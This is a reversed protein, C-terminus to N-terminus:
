ATRRSCRRVFMGPLTSLTRIDPAADFMDLRRLAQREITKFRRVPERRFQRETEGPRFSRIVVRFYVATWQIDTLVSEATLPKAMGVYWM